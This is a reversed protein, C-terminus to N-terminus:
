VTEKFSITLLQPWVLVYNYENVGKCGNDKNHEAAGIWAYAEYNHHSEIEITNPNILTISEKPFDHCRNIFQNIYDNDYTTTQKRENCSKTVKKTVKNTVPPM